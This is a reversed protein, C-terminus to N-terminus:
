ASIEEVPAIDKLTSQLDQRAKQLEYAGQLNMWFEPSTRFFAGLRVATDGTIGVQEAVIREVRTRPVGIAKAVRGATLGLPVIFEERLVEGPHLPPLRRAAM